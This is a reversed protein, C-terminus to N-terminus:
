SCPMLMEPPSVLMIHAVLQTNEGVDMIVKREVKMM